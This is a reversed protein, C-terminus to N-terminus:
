KEVEEKLLTKFSELVEGKSGSSYVTIYFKENYYQYDLEVNGFEGEMCCSMDRDDSTIAGISLISMNFKDSLMSVIKIFQTLSGINPNSSLLEKKM